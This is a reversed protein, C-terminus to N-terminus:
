GADDLAVGMVGPFPALPVAIDRMGRAFKGDTVDWIQLFPKGFESEPLLGRGPRVNTWGFSARPAIDVIEVALVDGPQTGRVYVPGTLPHGKFVRRMVDEHTSDPSYFYDSADRTEFVVTDGADITLRPPIANNWEYHVVGADLFHHNAPMPAHGGPTIALTCLRETGPLGLCKQDIALLSAVQRDRPARLPRESIAEDSREECHCM